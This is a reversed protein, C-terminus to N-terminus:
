KSCDRCHVADSQLLYDIRYLGRWVPQIVIQFAAPIARAPDLMSYHGSDILSVWVPITGAVNMAGVTLWATKQQHNDVIAAVLTPVLCVSFVITTPLFFVAVLFILFIAFRLSLPMKKNHGADNNDSM